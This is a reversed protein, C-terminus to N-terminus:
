HQIRPRRKQLLDVATAALRSGPRWVLCVWPLVVFTVVLRLVIVLAGLLAPALQVPGFPTLLGQQGVMVTFLEDLLWWCGIIAVPVKLSRTM